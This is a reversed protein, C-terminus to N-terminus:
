HSFPCPNLLLPYVNTLLWLVVQNHDVWELEKMKSIYLDLIDRQASPASDHKDTGQIRAMARQASIKVAADFSPPGIRYLPNKDLWFDLSPIQGVIAFYDLSREADALINQVDSGADLFGMPESYVMQGNVDWAYWMLWDGLDCINGTIAYKENIKESLAIITQDVLPEYQMISTLNYHRHIPKAQM